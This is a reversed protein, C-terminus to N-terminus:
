SDCPDVFHQQYASLESLNARQRKHIFEQPTMLAITVLGCEFNVVGACPPWFRAVNGNDLTRRDGACVVFTARWGEMRGPGQDIVLSLQPLGAASGVHTQLDAICDM